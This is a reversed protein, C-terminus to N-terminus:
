PVKIKFAARLPKYAVHRWQKVVLTNSRWWGPGCVITTPSQCIAHLQFRKHSLGNAPLAAVTPVNYHDTPRLRITGANASDTALYEPESVPLRVERGALWSAPTGKLNAAPHRVVRPRDGATLVQLELPSNATNGKLEAVQFRTTGARATVGPVLPLALVSDYVEERLFGIAFVLVSDANPMSTTPRNIPLIVSVTRASDRPIGGLTDPEFLRREGYTNQLNHERLTDVSAVVFPSVLEYRHGQPPAATTLRVRYGSGATVLSVDVRPLSEDPLETTRNLLGLGREVASDWGHTLTVLVASLAWLKRMRATRRAMFVWGLAVAAIMLWIDARFGPAAPMAFSWSTWMAFVGFLQVLRLVCCGVLVLLFTQLSSTMSAVLAAFLVAGATWYAILLLAFSSDAVSLGLSALWAAQAATSLIVPVVLAYAFKAILLTPAAVPQAIWYAGTDTPSDNQVVVVVFLVALIVYVAHVINQSSEVQTFCAGGCLARQVPPMALLTALVLAGVAALLNWKSYAWDKRLVARVPSPSM